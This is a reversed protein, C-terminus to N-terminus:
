LLSTKFMFGALELCSWFYGGQSLAEGGGDEGGAGWQVLVMWRSGEDVGMWSVVPGVHVLESEIECVVTEPYEEVGDTMPVWRNPRM